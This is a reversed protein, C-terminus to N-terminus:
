SGMHSNVGSILREGTDGASFAKSCFRFQVGVVSQSVSSHVRIGGVCCDNSGICYNGRVSLILGLLLGLLLCLSLLLSLLLRLSLLLLLLLLVLLLVDFNLLDLMVLSLLGDLIDIRTVDDGCNGGTLTRGFCGRTRLICASFTAAGEIAAFCQSKM